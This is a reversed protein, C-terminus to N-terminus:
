TVNFQYHSLNKSNLLLTLLLQENTNKLTGLQELLLQECINKSIPTRLLKAITVPFCRHHLRKKIFNCIKKLKPVPVEAIKFLKYIEWSFMLPSPRMYKTKKIFVKSYSLM